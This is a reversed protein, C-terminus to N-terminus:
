KEELKRQSNPFTGPPTILQLLAQYAPIEWEEDYYYVQFYPSSSKSASGADASNDSSTRDTPLSSSPRFWFKTRGIVDIKPKWFLFRSGTLSGVMNWRTQICEVDQRISLLDSRCETVFANVLPVLNQTNERFTDTGVFSITPDRFRCSEEFCSLDLDGTWLYNRKVYDMQIREMLEAPSTPPSGYPSGRSLTNSQDTTEEDEGATVKKLQSSTSMSNIIATLTSVFGKSAGDADDYSLSSQSEPEQLHLVIEKRGQCKCIDQNNNYDFGEATASTRPISFSQVSLSRSAAITAALFYLWMRM